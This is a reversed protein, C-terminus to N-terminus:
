RQPRQLCVITRPLRRVDPSVKKLAYTALTIEAVAAMREHAPRGQWHKYEDAKVADLSAYSQITKDMRGNTADLSISKM